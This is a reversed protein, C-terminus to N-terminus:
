DSYFPPPKCEPDHDSDSNIIETEGRETKGVQYTCQELIEVVPLTYRRQQENTIKELERLLWQEADYHPARGRLFRLIASVAKLSGSEAEKIDIPLQDINGQVQSLWKEEECVKSALKQEIKKRARQARVRIESAIQRAALFELPKEFETSPLEAPNLPTVGGGGESIVGLSGTLCQQEYFKRWIDQHNYLTPKSVGSEKQLTGVRVPQKEALLKELAAKIRARAVNRRKINALKHQINVSASTRKARLKEPDRMYTPTWHASRSIDAIVEARGESIEKSLGNHKGLLVQTMVAKREDEYGYGLPEISRSPDGYFYYHGLSLEAEHRQSEETLGTDSVKRGTLWREPIINPPIVGFAEIIEALQDPASSRQVPTMRQFQRINSKAPQIIQETVESLHDVYNLFNKYDDQTHLHRELDDMFRQLAEDPSISDREEIIQHTTPHLWAFGQQLPLRLGQGLADFYGPDPFVELTGSKLVFGKIRLLRLLYDRTKRSLVKEAFFIYIHWGGSESSQYTVPNEFGAERLTKLILRLGSKNHYRSNADIDLVAHRTHNGWRTGVLQYHQGAIAKCIESSSLKWRPDKASLWPSKPPKYIYSYPHFLSIFQELLLKSNPQNFFKARDFVARRGTIP